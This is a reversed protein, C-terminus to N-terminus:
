TIWHHGSRVRSCTRTGHLVSCYTATGLRPLAAGLVGVQVTRALRGVLEALQDNDKQLVCLRGSLQQREALLAEVQLNVHLANILKINNHHNLIPIERAGM